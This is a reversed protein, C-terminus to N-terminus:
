APRDPWTPSRGLLAMMQDVVNEAATPVPPAFAAGAVERAAGTPVAQVVQFAAAAAEPDPEFPLGLSRAVDWGHAVYDVLHFSIAQAAPFEGGLEPLTFAPAPNTFAELVEEAAAIYDGVPDAAPAMEWVAPDGGHGAAAAAFGRHQVSMHALLQRLNWEACPTPRELADAKQVLEISQRVARRDLETVVNLDIPM